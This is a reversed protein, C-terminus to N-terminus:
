RARRRSLVLGVIEFPERIRMALWGAVAIAAGACGGAALRLIDDVRGGLLAHDIPVASCARAAAHAAFVAAAAIAAIKALFVFTDRPPFVPTSKRLLVVLAVSKFVRTLSFGGAIAALTIVGEPMGELHLAACASRAWGAAGAAGCSALDLQMGVWSAAMSISSFVIGIVTMAVMRRNAFFGRMALAEIASAPIVLVYLATSLSAIGVAADDFEGGHFVLHTLPRSMVALVAVFPLFVALLFRGMRTLVEAFKGTDNRDVLECLFPFVATSLTLPVMTHITGQLMRGVSNARMLGTSQLHSLVTVNNFIDRVKAFLIGALLPLALWFLRKMAPDRWAFSPRMLGLKDHLGVLHTAFKLAAGGVLGAVLMVRANGNPLCMGLLLAAVVAFKWVADGFAALFFRKYANLIVYTTTGLSLGILAPALWRVGLCGLRFEEPKTEPTWQFWTWLRIVTGPFLMLIAVLAAVAVAQLTLVSNAFRWAKREGDGDGSGLKEMFIPMCAPALGEEGILFLGFICNQFALSYLADFDGKPLCHGMVKAQILGALKFLINAVAILLTARAIKRGIPKRTETPPQTM